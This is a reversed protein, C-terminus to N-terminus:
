QPCETTEGTVTFDSRWSELRILHPRWITASVKSPLKATQDWMGRSRSPNEGRKDVPDVTGRSIRRGMRSVVNRELYRVRISQGLKAEGRRSSSWRGRDRSSIRENNRGSVRQASSRRTGQVLMWILLFARIWSCKNTNTTTTTAKSRWINRNAIWPSEEGYCSNQPDPAQASSWVRTPVLELRALGSSFKKYVAM